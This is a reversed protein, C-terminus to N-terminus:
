KVKNLIEITAESIAVAMEKRFDKDVLLEIDDENTMFAGEIIFSPMDSRYIVIYRPNDVLGAKKLGLATLKKYYVDAVEKNTMNEFSSEQDSYYIQTGKVDPNTSANNHISLYLTGKKENAIEPRELIDVTSDDDRIMYTEIGAENLMREVHLSIDLDIDKEYVDDGDYEGISGVDQGGHGPDIIVLHKRAIENVEPLDVKEEEDEDETGFTIIYNTGQKKATYSTFKDVELVVRAITKEFQGLRIGEIYKDDEATYTTKSTDLTTDDFDFVYRNPSQLKMTYVEAEGVGKITIETTNSGTKVSVGTLYNTTKVTEKEDEDPKTKVTVTRTKDDWDVKFDLSESVFRVPIMTRSDIIRAPVDLEKYLNDVIAVVSEAFLLIETEGYVITIKKTKANWGVKADLSEFLARVPVLTRGDEIVPPVDTKAVVGDVVLTVDPLKEALATINLATLVMFALIIAVFKKMNKELSRKNYVYYCLEANKAICHVFFNEGKFSLIKTM